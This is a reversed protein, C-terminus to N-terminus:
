AQYQSIQEGILEVRLASSAALSLAQLWFLNCRIQQGPLIVIPARMVNLNSFFPAGNNARAAAGATAGTAAALDVGSGSPFNGLDRTRFWERSNITLQLEGGALITAEEEARTLPTLATANSGAAGAIRAGAVSLPEFKVAISTLIFPQDQSVTGQQQLNCVGDAPAANFFTLQTHGGTAYDIRHYYRKQSQIFKNPEDIPIGRMVRALQAATDASVGPWLGALQQAFRPKNVPNNRVRAPIMSALTLIDEGGDLDYM